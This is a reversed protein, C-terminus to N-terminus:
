TKTLRTWLQPGLIDSDELTRANGHAHQFAFLCEKSKLAPQKNWPPTNDLVMSFSQKLM